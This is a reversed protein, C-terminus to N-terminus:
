NTGRFYHCELTWQPEPGCAQRDDRVSPNTPPKLVHIAQTALWLADESPLGGIRSSLESSDADPDSAGRAGLSNRKRFTSSQCHSCAPGSRAHGRATCLLIATIERARVVVQQAKPSRLDPLRVREPRHNAPPVLRGSRVPPCCPPGPPPRM